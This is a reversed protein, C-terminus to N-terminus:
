SHEDKPTILELAAIFVPLDKMILNWLLKDDVTSYEHAIINRLGKIGRWPIDDHTARFEAPLLSVMEGVQLLALCVAYQKETNAYFEEETVSRTFERATKAYALMKQLIVDTSKM